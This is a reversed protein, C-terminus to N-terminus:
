AIPKEPDDIVVMTASNGRIQDKLQAIRPHTKAGKRKAIRVANNNIARRWAAVGSETIKGDPTIVDKRMLANVVRRQWPQIKLGIAGAWALFAPVNEDLYNIQAKSLREKSPNRLM